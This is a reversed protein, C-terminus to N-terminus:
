PRSPGAVGSKVNTSPINGNADPKLVLVDDSGSYRCVLMSGRLTGGFAGSKYEIM